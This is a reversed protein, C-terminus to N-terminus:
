DRTAWYGDGRMRLSLRLDISPDVADLPLAVRPALAGRRWGEWRGALSVADRRLVLRAGTVIGEVVLARLGWRSRLVGYKRLLYGRAFGSLRRQRVSEKGASAGGLHMGSPEPIAVCSWGAARLRFALDLEEGYMFINTDFLGVEALAARRYVAVAGYPGLVPPREADARSLEAGHFRVFGAGTVDAVIGYSDVTGDPALLLTAASGVRSAPDDPLARLAAAVADPELVVDSNVLMVLRGHGAAMGVNCTRAFGLNVENRILTVDPFEDGIRDATDDPSLDDVVIVRAPVSQARAARICSRVFDWGGHVPIVLDVEPDANM